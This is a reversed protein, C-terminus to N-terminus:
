HSKMVLNGCSHPFCLSWEELDCVFDPMCWSGPSLFLFRVPSQVLGQQNFLHIIQLVSYTTVVGVPESPLSEAQLAPLGPEIESDPLVEPSPCPLGSCYEQRSFEMSLPSQHAGPCVTELCLVRSPSEYVCVCVCVCM